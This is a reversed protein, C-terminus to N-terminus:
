EPYRDGLGRFVDDVFVYEMLRMVHNKETEILENLPPGDGFIEKMGHYFLLTEKEFNYARLLIDQISMDDAVSNGTLYKLPTSKRMFEAERGRIEAPTGEVKERMMKFHKQHHVEDDALQKLVDRIEPRDSFKEAMQRYFNEGAEEVEVAMDVIDTLKLNEVVGAGEHWGSAEEPPSRATM